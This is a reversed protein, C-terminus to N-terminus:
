KKICNGGKSKIKADLEQEKKALEEFRKEPKEKKKELGEIEEELYKSGREIAREVSRIDIKERRELAEIAEPYSYGENMLNACIIVREIDDLRQQERELTEGRKRRHSASLFKSLNYTIEIPIHESRLLIPVYKMPPIKRNRKDSIIAEDIEKLALEVLYEVVLTSRAKEEFLTSRAKAGIASKAWLNKETM